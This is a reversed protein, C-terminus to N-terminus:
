NRKGDLPLNDGRIALAKLEITANGKLGAENINADCTFRDESQAKSTLRVQNGQVDTGRVAITAQKENPGGADVKITASGSVFTGDQMLDIQITAPKGALTAQSIYKGSLTPCFLCVRYVRTAIFYGPVALLVLVIGIILFTNVKITQLRALFPNAEIFKGIFPLSSTEKGAKPPRLPSTTIPATQRGAPTKFGCKTCSLANPPVETYCRPCRM